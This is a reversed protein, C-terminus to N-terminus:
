KNNREKSLNKSTKRRLPTQTGITNERGKKQFFNQYPSKKEENNDQNKFYDRLNEHSKYITNNKHMMKTNVALNQEKKPKNM